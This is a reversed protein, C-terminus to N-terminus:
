TEDAPDPQGRFRHLLRRGALLLLLVGAGATIIALARGYANSRVNVTAADGLRAGEATTLAFQVTMQRSDSVRAPVQLSRSGRPPLQQIGVDEIEMAAPADVSLRVTIGIPLDNRAVLLLPSAESALTFVGGPAIITASGYMRDLGTRVATMRDRADSLAASRRPGRRDAGTMARLIDERFPATFLDPTLASRPDQVLAGRLTTVRGIQDGAANVVDDPVSDTRSDPPTQLGGLPANAADAVVVSLPRSTALGSRLLGAVTGLVDAAEDRDPRWTQPPVVTLTRADPDEPTLAKWLLAGIADQLRATRSDGGLDYIQDRPTFGPTSPEEGVGALATAVTPDFLATRLPPSPPTDPLEGRVGLTATDRPEAALISSSAVLATAGPVTTELMGAADPGLVGSEPWVVDRRSTVGLIGDIVDAPTTVAAATLTPDAVDAVADLDAQAFPVAVVCLSGALERLRDLWSQASASGAGPRTPGTPDAPNELVVYGRAMGAVTVLLDPDVALCTAAALRGETDVTGGVAFELASLLGELRGSAALSVALEDDVLRIPEDVTGPLGAALRPRDALPWLVTTGLPRTIDPAVPASAPSSADTVSADRPVGSVPLLFSADDLRAEQGFEPTGNVNVLLPYVGPEGIRLSPDTVSRLPLSLSFPVSDGQPLTRDPRSDTLSEFVGVTDFVDQDASLTTRLADASAIQPARQLRVAIDSVDRDGVNTVTGTVTATATSSTTVISPTVEDVSIQLFRGDESTDPPTGPQQPVPQQPVPQAANPYALAIGPSFALLAVVAVIAALVRTTPTSRTM